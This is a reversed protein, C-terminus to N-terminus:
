GGKKEKWGTEGREVGNRRARARGKRTEEGRKEEGRKEEEKEEVGTVVINTSEEGIRSHATHTHAHTHTHTHM